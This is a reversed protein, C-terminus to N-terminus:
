RGPPEVPEIRWCRWSRRASGGLSRAAADLATEIWVDEGKFTVMAPPWVCGHDILAPSVAIETGSEQRLFAVVETAPKDTVDLTVRTWVPPIGVATHIAAALLAAVLSWGAFGLWQHRRGPEGHGWFGM